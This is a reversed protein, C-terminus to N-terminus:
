KKYDSKRRKTLHIRTITVTQNFSNINYEVRIQAGIRLRYGPPKSGKIHDIDTGSRPTYPDDELKIIHDSIIKAVKEDKDEVKLPTRYFVRGQVAEVRPMRRIRELGSENIRMLEVSVDQFNNMEYYQDVGVQLDLVALSIAVYTMIGVAVVMSVAIFQGKSERIHRFLRLNFKKMVM